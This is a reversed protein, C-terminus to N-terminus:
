PHPIYERPYRTMRFPFLLDQYVALVRDMFPRLFSTTYANFFTMWATEPSWATSIIIGWTNAILALIFLALVMGSLVALLTDLWQIKIFVLNDMTYHTLLFIGITTPILMALFLLAEFLIQNPLGGTMEAIRRAMDQTINISLLVMGIILTVVYFIIIQMLSRGFGEIACVTVILVGIILLVIDMLM